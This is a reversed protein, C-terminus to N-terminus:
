WYQQANYYKYARDRYAIGDNRTLEEISDAPAASLQDQTFDVVYANQATDYDLSAWPVPHYKANMGLLGGFSVIAFMINNSQKDLVVDEVTGLKKGSRDNVTTGIVKKACIAQTHGSATTM